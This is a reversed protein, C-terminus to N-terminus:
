IKESVKTHPLGFFAITVCTPHECIKSVLNTMGDAQHKACSVLKGDHKYGFSAQTTCAPHQCRPNYDKASNKNQRMAKDTKIVVQLILRSWLCACAVMCYVVFHLMRLKHEIYYVRAVQLALEASRVPESALAASVAARM